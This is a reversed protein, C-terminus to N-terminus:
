ISGLHAQLRQAFRTLGLDPTSLHTVYQVPDMQTRRLSNRHERLGALVEAQRNAHLDVCFADPRIKALGYHQIVAPTFDKINYTVITSAKAKVATAVVHADKRQAPTRCMAQVALTLVPDAACNAASFAREMEAKRWDIRPQPIHLNPAALNRSWEAHIEDSWIPEFAGSAALWLLLNTIRGQFLICADLVAVPRM